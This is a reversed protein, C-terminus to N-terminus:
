SVLDFAGPGTPLNRLHDEEHREERQVRQWPATAATGKSHLGADSKGVSNTPTLIRVDHVPNIASM